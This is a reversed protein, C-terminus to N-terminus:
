IKIYMLLMYTVTRTKIVYKLYVSIGQNCFWMLKPDQVSCGQDVITCFPPVINNCSAGGCAYCEFPFKYFAYVKGATRVGPLVVIIM